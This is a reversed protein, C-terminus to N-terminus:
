REVPRGNIPTTTSHSSLATELDAEVGIRVKLWESLVHAAADIVTCLGGSFLEFAPLAREGM